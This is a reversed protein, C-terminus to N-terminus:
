GKGVLSFSKGQSFPGILLAYFGDNRKNQNIVLKSMRIVKTLNFVKKLGFRGLIRPARRGTPERPGTAGDREAHIVDM